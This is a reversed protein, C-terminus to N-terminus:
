AAAPFRRNAALSARVPPGFKRWYVCGGVLRENVLAEAGANTLTSRGHPARAM